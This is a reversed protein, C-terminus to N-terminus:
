PSDEGVAIVFPPRPSAYLAEVLHARHTLVARQNISGKDTVEGLDISPLDALLIARTIRNSSGTARAALQFLKTHMAARLSPHAVLDAVACDPPLDPLAARCGDPDPFLLVGIDDRDIGAVVADRVLPACAAILAARLPGVSVWTGTALKFDETIRGDFLLGKTVDDPDDFRLADGLKYFGEDDYAAATLDPRRWYGPTLNPGKLRAELKGAAPVLKLDVGPAPLGCMGSRSNEPTASLAFPASETAGLGTLMSLRAGTTRAALADLAAWVHASLGAGAFFYCHLRSFFRERLARDRELHPVLMEFGKPVNFYVTPPVAMLNRVTAAIGAGPAPRGDDIYLTGGNYLVLGTNHSGGFTHNWPLWDVIVPPEDQLFRLVERLQVQNACLMRHTTIVAKPEGTSGSTLLFKAIHGAEIAAHARAVADGPSTALLDAFATAARDPSPRDSVVLEADHPVAASIASAFAAGDGAYVLGPTLLAMAHRLKGFDKSVLSYPPSIACHPIGVHMAGLALMLHDISNGSLIAVPREASLGRKLLAAGIATVRRLADAYTVEVWAGDRGREAVFIREPAANAWHLLRETLTRPCRPLTARPSIYITGDGHRQITVDLTGFHLPKLPAAM